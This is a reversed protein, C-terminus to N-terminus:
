GVQRKGPEDYNERFRWYREGRVWVVTDEILNRFERLVRKDIALSGNDDTKLEGM